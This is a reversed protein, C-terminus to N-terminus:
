AFIAEVILKHLGKVGSYYKIHWLASCQYVILELVSKYCIIWTVNLKNRRGRSKIQAKMNPFTAIAAAQPLNAALRAGFIASTAM